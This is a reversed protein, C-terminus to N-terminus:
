LTDFTVDAKLEGRVLKPYYNLLFPKADGRQLVGYHCAGGVATSSPPLDVHFAHEGKKWDLPVAKGARDQAVLKTSAITAIDVADDPELAESFVVVLKSADKADPVIWIFHARAPLVWSALAVLCVAFRKM